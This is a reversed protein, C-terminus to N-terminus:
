VEHADFEETLRSVLEDETVQEAPTSAGAPEAEAAHEEGLVTFRVRPSGGLAQGVVETITQMNQPTEILSKAFANSAPLGLMLTGEEFSVPRASVVLSHLPMSRRGIEPVIAEAWRDAVQDIAPPEAAAPEPAPPSQEPETEPEPAPDAAVTPPEAVAVPAEPAKPEPAAPPAAAPAGPPRGSELQQIRQELAEMGLENAPRSV